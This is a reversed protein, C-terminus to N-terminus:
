TRINAALNVLMASVRDIRSLVLMITLSSAYQVNFRRARFPTGNNRRRWAPDIGPEVTEFTYQIELKWLPFINKASTKMREM